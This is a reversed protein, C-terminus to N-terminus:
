AGADAAEEGEGGEGMSWKSRRRQPVDPAAAAGPGTNRYEYFRADQWPFPSSSWNQWQQANIAATLWTDRITIQGAPSTVGTSLWPRALYYSGAALNGASNIIRSGTILYGRPQALSTDPASVTGGPHGLIDITDRAFVATGSRM